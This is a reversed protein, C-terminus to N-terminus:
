HFKRILRQRVREIEAASMTVPPMTTEPLPEEDKGRGRRRATSRTGVEGSSDEDPEAKSAM